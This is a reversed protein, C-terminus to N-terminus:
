KKSGQLQLDEVKVIEVRFAGLSTLYAPVRKALIEAEKDDCDIYM